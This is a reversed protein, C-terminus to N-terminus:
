GSASLLACEHGCGCVCVWACVLACVGGSRPAMGTPWHSWPLQSVQMEMHEMHSERMESLLILVLPVRPLYLSASQSPCCYTFYLSYLSTIAISLLYLNLVFLSFPDAM